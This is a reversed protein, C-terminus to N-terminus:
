LDCSHYAHHFDLARSALEGLRNFIKLIILLLWACVSMVDWASV